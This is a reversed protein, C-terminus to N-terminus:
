LGQGGFFGMIGWLKQKKVTKLSKLSAKWAETKPLKDVWFYSFVHRIDYIGQLLLFTMSPEALMKPPGVLHPSVHFVM